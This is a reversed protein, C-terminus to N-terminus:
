GDVEDRVHVKVIPKKGCFDRVERRVAIRIIEGADARGQRARRFTRMAESVADECNSKLEDDNEVEPIGQFMFVPDDVLEKDAIDVFVGVFGEQSIRRRESIASSFHTTIVDGDLVWRGSEVENVIDANGDADIAMAQGNEVVKTKPVDWAKAFRAHAKLHRMEGHVPVALKPRVWRYMKELEERGPHGSVHVFERRETIVDIDDAALQNYLRGISKENGPIIKSSFVVLDGPDLKLDRHDGFAIRSLAARPEGQCGTCAVLLKNRPLHSAEAIDLIDPLDAFYGAQKAIRVIRDMSRGMTVFHRGTAEAVKALSHLRAANSAFTAVIIRGSQGELLKILSDRVDGESGSAAANFVNTSDGVLAVVGEDGIKTLAEASTPKGLIPRDDLKWDGTHFIKGIPTDILLANGELISHALPLYRFHFPDLSVSGGDDVIILKVQNLLGAEILKERILGATFKTAYIPCELDPWLYPIAGIHDEHGHTVVLGLLDDKYDAIFNPDPFVLDIGPLYDEGFSMGLDVMVWKGGYGYLSLNMGIEGCGGLPLFFLRDGSFWSPKKM